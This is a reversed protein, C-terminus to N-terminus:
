NEELGTFSTFISLKEKWRLVGCPNVRDHSLMILTVTVTYHILDTKSNQLSKTMHTAMDLKKKTNLTTITVKM